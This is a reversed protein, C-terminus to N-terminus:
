KRKWGTIMAAVLNERHRWSEWVVGSVHLTVLVVLMDAISGHLEELWDLGRWDPLGMMWGTTCIAAITVILAVVMAGGAPNHGLYRRERGLRIDNFYSILRGPGPVFDRFRAHGPGVLGWVLRVAIAGAAINGLLRHTDRPSQFLWAGSVASVLTWHFVRVLPDWVKVRQQAQM